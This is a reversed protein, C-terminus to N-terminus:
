NTCHPAMCLLVHDCKKSEQERSPNDQAASQQITGVAKFIELKLCNDHSIEKVKEMYSMKLKVMEAQYHM